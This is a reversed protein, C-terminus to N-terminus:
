WVQSVGPVYIYKCWSMQGRMIAKVHGDVFLSSCRSQHRFRPSGAPGEWGTALTLASPTQHRFPRIIFAPVFFFGIGALASLVFLFWLFSRRPQMTSQFGVAGEITVLACLFFLEPPWLAQCFTM